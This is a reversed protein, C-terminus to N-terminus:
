SHAEDHRAINELAMQLCSSQFIHTYHPKGQAYSSGQLVNELDSPNVRVSFDGSHEPSPHRLLCSCCAAPLLLLCSAPPLIYCSFEVVTILQKFCMLVLTAGKAGFSDSQRDLSVGEDVDHIAVRM